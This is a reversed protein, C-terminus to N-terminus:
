KVVKGTICINDVYHGHKLVCIQKDKIHNGHVYDYVTVASGMVAMFGFLLGVVLWGEAAQSGRPNELNWFGGVLCIFLGCVMVLTMIFDFM